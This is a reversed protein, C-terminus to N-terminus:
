TQAQTSGKISGIPVANVQTLLLMYDDPPLLDWMVYASVAAGLIDGALKWSRDFGEQTPKTEDRACTMLYGRRFADQNIAKSLDRDALQLEELRGANLTADM